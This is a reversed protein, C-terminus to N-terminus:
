RLVTVARWNKGEGRTSREADPSKERLMKEAYKGADKDSVALPGLARIVGARVKRPCAHDVDEVSIMARPLFIREVDRSDVRSNHSTGDEPQIEARRAWEGIIEDLM